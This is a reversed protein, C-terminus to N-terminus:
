TPIERILDTAETEEEFSDLYNDMYFNAQIENAADFFENARDQAARILADNCIM